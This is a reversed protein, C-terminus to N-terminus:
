WGHLWMSAEYPTSISASDLSRYKGSSFILPRPDAREPAELHLVKGVIITHDGGEYRAWTECEFWALADRILSAPIKRARVPDLGDWKDTMAKAFRNSIESQNDGLISIAFFPVAEWLTIAKATKALSFLVLPPDLSVSNFSSVTAGLREGNAADATIVAVGTPFRGLANRMDRATFPAADTQSM